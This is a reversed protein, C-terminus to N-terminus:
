AARGEVLDRWLAVAAEITALRGDIAPDDRRDEVVRCAHAATTRDRRFLRGVHTLSLGLDVHAVYMAVQRAFAVPAQRRTPRGLEVVPLGFAAAVTAELFRRLTEDEVQAAAAGGREVAVGSWELCM